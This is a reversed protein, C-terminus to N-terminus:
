CPTALNSTATTPATQPPTITADVFGQSIEVINGDPDQVWVTRWGPIFSDFAFPGLTVKADDGLEALAANVDDVQFAIHRIGPWAYGDNTPPAIPAEGKAQFLELYTEGRKIFIIQEEGPKSGVDLVRARRFGFHKAYFAETAAQNRCNLAVHAFRLGNM